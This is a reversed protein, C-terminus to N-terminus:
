GWFRISQDLWPFLISKTRYDFKVYM